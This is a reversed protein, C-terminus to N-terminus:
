RSCEVCVDLVRGSSSVVFLKQKHPGYVMWHRRGGLHAAEVACLEVKVDAPDLGLYYIAWACADAARITWRYDHYNGMQTAVRYAPPLLERQRWVNREAWSAALALRARSPLLRLIIAIASMGTMPMRREVPLWGSYGM